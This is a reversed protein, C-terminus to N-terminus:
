PSGGCAKPLEVPALHTFSGEGPRGSTKCIAYRRSSPAIAAAYPYGILVGGSSGTQSIDSTVATCSLRLRSGVTGIQKCQASRVLTKLEGTGHRARADSTVAQEVGTLLPIGAALPGCRPKQEAHLRARERQAAARADKRDQAAQERNSEAIKPLLIIAAVVLGAGLVALTALVAKRWGPSLQGLLHGPLRFLNPLPERRDAPQAPGPTV